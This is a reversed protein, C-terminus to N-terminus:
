SAVINLEEYGGGFSYTIKITLENTKRDSLNEEFPIAVPANLSLTAGISKKDNLDCISTLYACNVQRKMHPDVNFRAEGIFITDSVKRFDISNLLLKEAMIEVRPHLDFGHWLHMCTDMQFGCVDFDVIAPAVYTHLSKPIFVTNCNVVGARHLNNVAAVQHEDILGTTLMEMIVADYITNPQFEFSTADAEIVDIIDSYGNRKINRRAVSAIYPDYELCTVKRAGARAAFMALIGSGTGVDLVLSDKRVARSIAEGFQRTRENDFLCQNVQDISSFAEKAGGIPRAIKPRQTKPPKGHM